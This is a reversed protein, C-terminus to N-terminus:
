QFYNRKGRVYYIMVVTEGVETGGPEGEEM